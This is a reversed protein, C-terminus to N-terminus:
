HPAPIYTRAALLRVARRDIENSFRPHTRIAKLESGFVFDGGVWGYYLPKEGFRDRVLHLRREKRDWLALAFMGVCKQLTVKLGWAAICEILTETDSHGRWPLGNGVAGGVEELERRLSQHNYIEGNYDLMWRGDNSSMPQHGLPSLDIISLRRHGLGVGAEEDIWVGQDDPGRHAIPDTMRRVAEPTIPQASLLGAIGCM